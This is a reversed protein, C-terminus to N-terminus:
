AKSCPSFRTNQKGDEDPDATAEMNRQGHLANRWLVSAFALGLDNNVAFLIRWHDAQGSPEREHDSKRDHASDDPEGEDATANGSEEVDMLVEEESRTQGGIDVDENERFGGNSKHRKAGAAAVEVSETKVGDKGKASEEEACADSQSRRAWRCESPYDCQNWCDREETPDLPLPMVDDQMRRWEAWKKWGAYDFRSRCPGHKKVRGTRRSKTKTQVSCFYHGDELCRRTVALSYTSRCVHCKWKWPVPEAPPSPLPSCPPPPPLRECHNEHATRKKPITSTPPFTSTPPDSSGTPSSRPESQAQLQSNQRIQSRTQIKKSPSSPASVPLWSSALSSAFFPKKFRTLDLNFISGVM